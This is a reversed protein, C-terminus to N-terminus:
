VLARGIEDLVLDLERLVERNWFRLVRFGRRELESDRKGDTERSHHEGDVEVILRASLSVFDVIYPGIPHQRRFRTGSEGRRIAWWLLREADTPTTRM